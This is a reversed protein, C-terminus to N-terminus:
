GQAALCASKVATGVFRGAQYLQNDASVYSPIAAVFARYYQGRLALFDEMIPNGSSRGIRNFDDVAGGLVKGAMDWLVTEASTRQSAPVNADLRYWSELKSANLDLLSNVQVCSDSPTAIFRQADAPNGVPALSTPPASQEVDASRNEASYNSAATCVAFIAAALSNRTLALRDDAPTYSPIADAYARNYVILQSYLERMVRHPTERALPMLKDASVKLVRAASEFVQRQQPNWASAPISADRTGWDSLQNSLPDEISLYNQCSPDETIIGVPGTDNASAIEGTAASSGGGNESSTGRHTL